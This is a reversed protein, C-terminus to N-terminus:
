KTTQYLLYDGSRNIMLCDTCSRETSIVIAGAPPRVGYKLHRFEATNRRELTAYWFSHMYAPGWYNDVLYIPRIPQAVAEDYLQKYASDFVYGRKHGEHQYQWHFYSAEAITVILLVALLGQRVKQWFNQGSLSIEAKASEERITKDDETQAGESKYLLWKLAPVILMLLFIPYAIMRLTHFKDVTLAGPVVSAALGYLIFRWWADRWHRILVVIIGIVALIFTAFFMNGLADPLHHRQNIDGYFLLRIPSIDELYRRFFTVIIEGWPTTPKIYSLLSFRTTLEPNQLRFVLLPVLTVGYILWTKGIAFLRQKNVAFCLLGLALLPALLRGITYTYTLLTLTLAVLICDIWAWESKRQARYVAWLFLVVAMPYFFTELMLRGVEFLWPTLLANLAVIFGITKRGSVRAALVGLLLSAAYMSAAALLRALLISPGFVWFVLTLLYVSTPNAYQTFGGTYFQFFLPFRSGFEGAGTQTVLYANYALGSEDVYFGPPNQSIGFVYLLFVLIIAGAWMLGRGIRGQIHLLNLLSKRKITASNPQNQSYDAQKIDEDM